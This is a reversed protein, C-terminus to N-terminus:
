ATGFLHSLLGVSAPQEVEFLRKAFNRLSKTVPNNSDIRAIPVGQNVSASVAKFSNPVTIFISRGLAREVDSLQIDGGKEYRNVVMDIRGDPYGLAHLTGILRKADRIFPLTLQLVPFIREARDLAKIAAPGLNRGLDLIVCDYESEALHVVAEVHEPRIDVARELSDPAALVSFNPTIRVMSSALLAADLRAINRAVDAFNMAPAHDSVFLSADGFNLNLDLLAVSKGAEEALLYALNTALFTAGSGGKCPILALVKGKEPRRVVAMVKQEIRRVAARLVDPNAPSELVERVGVRMARLLVDSSVNGCIAIFSTKPHRLSPGELAEFEDPRGLLGDIIILDPEAQDAVAAVELHAGRVLQLTRTCAADALLQGIRELEEQSNSIVAIKM